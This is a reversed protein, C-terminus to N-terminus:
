RRYASFLHFNFSFFLSTISVSLPNVTFNICISKLLSHFPLLLPPLFTSHVTANPYHPPPFLFHHVSLVWFVCEILILEQQVAEIFILCKLSLMTSKVAKSPPSKFPMNCSDSAHIPSLKSDISGQFENKM